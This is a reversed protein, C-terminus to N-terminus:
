LQSIIKGAEEVLEDTWNLEKKLWITDKFKQSRKILSQWYQKAKDINGLAHHSVAIGAISMRFGDHKLKNAQEFDHLANQYDRLMFYCEARNNLADAIHAGQRIVEDYNEISQSWDGKENFAYGRAFYADVMEPDLRIAENFNMIAADIYKKEHLFLIGRNYYSLPLNPNLQIVQEYDAIAGDFDKAKVKSHAREIYEEASLQEKTPRPQKNAQIIKEKVIPLDHPPPAVISGKVEQKLFRTRLRTMAEDFYDHPVNVANFRALEILKGTLYPTSNEFSFNNVLLPIINRQLSIAHEIERRFWDDHNETGDENVCREVAGPTLIVIFHARAAIQNLIATDFAGSDINMVDMFVDYGNYRLDQFIARAIFASVNRRYSIFVTKDDSAM